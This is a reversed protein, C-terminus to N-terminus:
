PQDETKFIGNLCEDLEDAEDQQRKLNVRFAQTSM